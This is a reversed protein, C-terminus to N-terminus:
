GTWKYYTLNVNYEETMSVMLFYEVGLLWGGGIAGGLERGHKYWQIETNYISSVDYRIGDFGQM